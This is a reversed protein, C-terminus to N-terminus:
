PIDFTSTDEAAKVKAFDVKAANKCTLSAIRKGGDEVVVGAKDISTSEATYVIYSTKGNVFRLFEYGGGALMGRGKKAAKADVTIDLATASLGFKYQASDGSSCVAVSKKGTNCSFAIKEGATCLEATVLSGDAGAEPKRSAKSPSSEADSQVPRAPSDQKTAKVENRTTPARKIICWTNPGVQSQSATVGPPVSPCRGVGAEVIDPSYFECFIQNGRQSRSSEFPCMTPAPFPGIRIQAFAQQSLLAFTIAVMSKTLM